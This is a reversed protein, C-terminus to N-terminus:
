IINRKEFIFNIPKELTLTVHPLVIIDEMKDMTSIVFHRLLKATLCMMEMIAFKYGICKRPGASFPIFSFKHRRQIEEQSFREPIFENPNPYIEPNKHIGPMFIAVETGASLELDDELFLLSIMKSILLKIFNFLHKVFPNGLRLPAKLKRMIFFVVPFLRLTENICMELYKLKNLDRYDINDDGNGPLSDIEERCLEQHNPHLALLFLLFQLAGETTEYGASLLTVTEELIGEVPVGEALLDQKLSVKNNEESEDIAKRIQVSAMKSIFKQVKSLPHMQWIPEILLWPNTMRKTILPKAMDVMETFSIKGADEPELEAVLKGSTAKIIANLTATKLLHSIKVGTECNTGRLSDVLRDAEDNFIQMNSTLTRFSFIHKDLLKRRHKWKAGTSIILGDNWFPKFPEYIFGKDFYNSDKSGLLKQVYEPSNIMIVRKTGLVGEFVPGYKSCWSEMVKLFIKTNSLALMNAIGGFIHHGPGPLRKNSVSLTEVNSKKHKRLLLVGLSFLIFTCVARFAYYYITNAQGLSYAQESITPVSGM